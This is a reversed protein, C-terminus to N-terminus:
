HESESEILFDCESILAQAIGQTLSCNRKIESDAMQRYQKLNAPLTNFALRLAAYRTLADADDALRIALSGAYQRHRLLKLCLIDVAETGPCSRLWQEADGESLQSADFIMPALLQSERVGTDAKLELALAQDTGITKAIQSLQPLNLGFVMRYPAAAKRMTDAIIGNRLAYFEKKVEALTM